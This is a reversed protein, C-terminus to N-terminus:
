KRPQFKHNAKLEAVKFKLFSDTSDNLEKLEDMSLYIAGDPCEIWLDADDEDFGVSCGIIKLKEEMDATWFCDRLFAKADQEDMLLYTQTGLAGAIKQLNEVKPNQLGLEYKRITTEIVGSKEALQKQTLGREMRLSKIKEGSVGM